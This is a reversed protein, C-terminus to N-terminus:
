CLNVHVRKWKKLSYRQLILSTRMWGDNRGKKGIGVFCCPIHKGSVVLTLNFNGTIKKWLVCVTRTKMSGKKM